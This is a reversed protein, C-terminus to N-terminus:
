EDEDSPYCMMVRIKSVLHQRELEHAIFPADKKLQNFNGGLCYRKLWANRDNVFAEDENLKLRKITNSVKEYLDVDLTPNPKILLTPFELLFWNEQITFPDLIDQYDLKHTNVLPCALRYNSWEYALWPDISKPVFHDVNPSSSRPIWHATYACIGRYLDHIHVRIHRWNDHRAWEKYTVKPKAVGQTQALKKLYANGPIRVKQDFMAPEPQMKVPIVIGSWTRRCLVEM